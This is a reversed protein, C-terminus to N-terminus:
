KNEATQPLEPNELPTFGTTFYISNISKVKHEDAPNANRKVMDLRKWGGLEMVTILDVMGETVLRTAFTNRLDHINFNVDIRAGSAAGYSRYSNCQYLWRVFSIIPM